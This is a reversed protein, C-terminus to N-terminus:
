WPSLIDPGNETVAVSKEFHASPRRDATVTTWEDEMVVVEAVGANIMPELALVLGPLFKLDPKPKGCNPVQPEEHMARGIGHGVFQYVVSFGNQGAHGEVAQAIDSLRRGPVMVAIARELCERTVQLLKRKEADVEGVPVTIAADGFYGDQEVGFDISLLDGEKLVRKESPIGHVVEENISTCLMAPYGRYGLFAPKAKTKAMMKRAKKELDMTSVGPRAYAKLERLVEVVLRNARRMAEIERRNKLSVGM